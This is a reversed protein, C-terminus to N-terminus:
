PKEKARGPGPRGNEKPTIEARASGHAEYRREKIKLLLKDGTILDGDQEIRPREDPKADPSTLEAVQAAQAYDLAEATATMGQYNVRVHERAKMDKKQADWELYEGAVKLPQQKDDLSSVRVNGRAQAHALNEKYTLEQATLTLGRESDTLRIGQRAVAQGDQSRVELYPAELLAGAQRVQVRGTFVTVQGQQTYVLRDSTIAVPKDESMPRLRADQSVPGSVVAATGSNGKAGAPTNGGIVPSLVRPACAASLWLCVLFGVRMGKSM